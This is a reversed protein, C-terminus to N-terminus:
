FRSRLHGVRLITQLEHEEHIVRIMEQKEIALASSSEMATATSVRLPQGAICGAGFFDGPHLIAVVAEKGISSVVAIKVAGALLFFVPESKDGQSFITQAKRYSLLKKKVGYTTLYQGIDFPREASSKNRVM